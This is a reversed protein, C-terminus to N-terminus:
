GIGGSQGSRGAETLGPDPMEKWFLPGLMQAHSM